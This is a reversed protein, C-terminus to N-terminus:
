EQAKREGICKIPVGGYVKNKEMESKGLVVANAAIVCGDPIQSGMLVRVGDAIWVDAGIKIPAVVMDQKMFKEGLVIGHNSDRVSCYQATGSYPGIEVLSNIGWTGRSGVVVNNHLILKGKRKLLFIVDEGIIVDDGIQVNKSPRRHWSPFAVCTLRKGVKCGCRHRLYMTLLWGRLKELTKEFM